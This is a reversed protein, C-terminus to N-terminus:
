SIRSFRSFFVVPYPLIRYLLNTSAIFPSRTYLFFGLLTHAYAYTHTHLHTHTHTHKHTHLHTCTLTHVFCGFIVHTHGCLSEHTRTCLPPGHCSRVYVHWFGVGKAWHIGACCKKHVQGCRVARPPQARQIWGAM